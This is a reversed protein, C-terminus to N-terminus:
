RRSRLLSVISQQLIILLILNEIYAMPSLNGYLFFSATFFLIMVILGRFYNLYKSIFVLNREVMNLILNAGFFIMSSIGVLSFSFIDDLAFLGLIILLDYIGVELSFMAVSFILALDINKLLSINSSRLLADVIVALIILIVKNNFKFTRKLQNLYYFSYM